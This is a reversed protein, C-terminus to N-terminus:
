DKDPAPPWTTEPVNQQCDAQRAWAFLLDGLRNLYILIDSRVPCQHHLMAVTRETRRCCARAMHLRAALECGGPLIFHHLPGAAKVAEDCWVELQRCSTTDIGQPLGPSDAHALEAGITFLDSQIQLLQGNLIDLGAACRCWGLISNLEDLDGFAALRPHNKDVRSGDPLSTDGEDGHRTYLSMM